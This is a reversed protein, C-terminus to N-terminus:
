IQLYDRMESITAVEVTSSEIQNKIDEIDAKLGEITAFDINEEFVYDCPMQRDRIPIRLVAVTRGSEDSKYDYIYATCLGSEQLILNPVKVSYGIDHREPVVPIACETNKNEFHFVPQISPGIGKVIISQNLDWRYLGSLVNGDQDYCFLEM